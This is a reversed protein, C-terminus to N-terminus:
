AEAQDIKGAFEAIRRGAGAVDGVLNLDHPGDFTALEAGPFQAVEREVLPLPFLVDSTGFVYLVHKSTPVLSGPRQRIIDTFVQTSETPQVGADLAALAETTAWEPHQHASLLLHKRVADDPFVNGDSSLSRLVGPHRFVLWGMLSVLQTSRWSNWGHAAMLSGFMTLGDSPYTSAHAWAILGGLSHGVVVIKQAQGGLYARMDQRVAEVDRAFDVLGVRRLPQEPLLGSEGHGRFNMIGTPVGGGTIAAALKQYLPITHNSGPAILVATQRVTPEGAPPCTVYELPPTQETGTTFRRVAPLALPTTQLTM